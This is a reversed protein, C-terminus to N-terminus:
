CLDAGKSLCSLNIMFLQLEPLWVRASLQEMQWAFNYLVQIGKGSQNPFLHEM